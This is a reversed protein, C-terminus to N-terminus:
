FLTQIKFVVHSDRAISAFAGKGAVVARYGVIAKVRDSLRASGDAAVVDIRQEAFDYNAWFRIETSRSDNLAIQAGAFGDRNFPIILSKDRGDYYYEGFVSLTRGGKMLGSLNYEGGVAIGSSRGNGQADQRLVDESKLVLNGFTVQLELGTQHELNYKPVLFPTGSSDAELLMEPERGFGYFHSVGVYVNGFNQFYRIAGEPQGRGIGSAYEEADQRIPIAPRLRGTAAPFQLPQFGTLAYLDLTGWKGLLTVDAMPQGLRRKGVVDDTLDRQNIVNVPNVFEMVGWFEVDYGAKFRWHDGHTAVKATHLDFISRGSDVADYRYYPNITVDFREFLNPAEFKVEGSFGPQATTSKEGPLVPADVFTRVEGSLDGSLSVQADLRGAFAIGAACAILAVRYIRRM